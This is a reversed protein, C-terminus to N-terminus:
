TDQEIEAGDVISRTELCMNLATSPQQYSGLRVKSMRPLMQNENLKLSKMQPKQASRNPCRNKRSPCMSGACSAAGMQLFAPWFRAGESAVGQHTKANDDVVDYPERDEGVM